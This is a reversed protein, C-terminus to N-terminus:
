DLIEVRRGTNAGLVPDLFNECSVALRTGDASLTTDGNTGCSVTESHTATGGTGIDYVEVSSDPNSRERRVAIRSGDASL